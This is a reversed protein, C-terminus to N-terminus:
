SPTLLLVREVGGTGKGNLFVEVVYLVHSSM